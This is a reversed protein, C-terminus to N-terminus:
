GANAEDEKNFICFFEVNNGVRYIRETNFKSDDRNKDGYKDFLGMFHQYDLHIKLVGNEYYYDISILDTKSELASIDGAIREVM